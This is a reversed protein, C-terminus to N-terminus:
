HRGRHAPSREENGIAALDGGADERRAPAQADARDGRHPGAVLMSEMRPDRVGRDVDRRVEVGVSEDRGGARRAGLENV